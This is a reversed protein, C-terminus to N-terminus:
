PTPRACDGTSLVDRRVRILGEITLLYVVGILPNKANKEAKPNRADDATPRTNQSSKRIVACVM